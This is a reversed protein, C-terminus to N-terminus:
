PKFPRLRPYSGPEYPQPDRADDPRPYANFCLEIHPCGSPPVDTILNPQFIAATRLWHGTQDGSQVSAALNAFFAGIGNSRAAAYRLLPVLNRAIAEVRPVAPGVLKIVELLRRLTPIASLRAGIRVTDATLGPLESLVPAIRPAARRLAAILPAAHALLPRSRALVTRASGLVRPVEALGRNLAKSNTALADLTTRGSAVIESLDRERRGLADLVIAGDRTIGALDREQGKLTGTLLRLEHVTRTLGGVTANLKEAGRRDATAHALEDLISRVHRRGRADLFDLAEDFDVSQVGPIEGGDPVAPATDPGPELNVYSDGLLTREGIWARAGRRVPAYEDDIGLTVTATADSQNYEVDEVKGVELGRLLVPQKTPLAETDKFTAEVSYGGGLQFPTPGEFAVNLFIFTIAAAVACVLSIAVGLRPIRHDM